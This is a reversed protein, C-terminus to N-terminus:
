GLRTALAHVRDLMQKSPYKDAEIKEYLVDLYEIAQERNSITAEVRDMLDGSPYRDDRVKEFLMELYRDRTSEAAM